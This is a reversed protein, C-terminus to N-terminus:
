LFLGAMCMDLVSGQPFPYVNYIRVQQRNVSHMETESDSGSIEGDELNEMTNRNTHGAMEEVRFNCPLQFRLSAM